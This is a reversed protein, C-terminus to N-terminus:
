CIYDTLLNYINNYIVDPMNPIGIAGPTTINHKFLGKPGSEAPIEANDSVRSVQGSQM